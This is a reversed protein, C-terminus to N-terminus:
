NKKIEELFFFSQKIKKKLRCERIINEEVM